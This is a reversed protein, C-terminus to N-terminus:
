RCGSGTSVSSKSTWPDNCARRLFEMRRLFEAREVARDADREDECKAHLPDRAMKEFATRLKRLAGAEIQRVRERGIGLVEGIEDLTMGDAGSHDGQEEQANYAVSPMPRTCPGFQEAFDRRIQETLRADDRDTWLTGNDNWRKRLERRHM